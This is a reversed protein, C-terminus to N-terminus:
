VGPKSFTTRSQAKRAFRNEASETPISAPRTGRGLPQPTNTTVRRTLARSDFADFETNRGLQGALPDGCLVLYCKSSRARPNTCQTRARGSLVSAASVFMGEGRTRLSSRPTVSTWADSCGQARPSSAGVTLVGFISAVASPVRNMGHGLERRATFWDLRTNLAAFFCTCGSSTDDPAGVSAPRRVM